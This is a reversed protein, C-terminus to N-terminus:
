NYEKASASSKYTEAYAAEWEELSILNNEDKDLSQMTKGIFEKANLGNKNKDFRMLGSEEYFTKYGYNTYDTDGDNGVDVFEFTEQEIPVITMVSITNWEKNDIYANDDLDFSDFLRDGVEKMSYKGDENTDFESFNVKKVNPLDQVDTYVEKRIKTEEAQAAVAPVTMVLASMMMMKMTSSM